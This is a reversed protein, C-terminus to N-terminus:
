GTREHQFELDELEDVYLVVNVSDEDRTVTVLHGRLSTSARFTQTMVPRLNYSDMDREIHRTTENVTIRVYGNGPDEIHLHGNIIYYGDVRQKTFYDDDVYKEYLVKDKYEIELKKLGSKDETSTIRDYKINFRVTKEEPDYIRDAGRPLVRFIETTGSIWDNVSM